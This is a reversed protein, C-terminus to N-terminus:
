SNRRGTIANAGGMVTQGVAHLGKGVGRAVFKGAAELGAAPRGAAAERRSIWALLEEAVAVPDLPFRATLPLGAGVAAAIRRQWGPVNADATAVFESVCGRLVAFDRTGGGSELAGALARELNGQLTVCVHAVVTGLVSRVVSVQLVACLQPIMGIIYEMTEVFGREVTDGSEPDVRSTAQVTGRRVEILRKWYEIDATPKLRDETEMIFANLLKDIGKEVAKEFLAASSALLRPEGLKEWRRGGYDSPWALFFQQEVCSLIVSMTACSTVFVAFQLVGREPVTMLHNQLLEAVTRFLVSLYKLFMEDVNNLESQRVVASHDTVVISHCRSLFRLAVDGIVPVMSAYPLSVRGSTYGNPPLPLEIYKCRDLYFKKVYANYDEVNTAILPVLTDTLVAQTAEMCAEQLWSSIINDSMAEVVLSLTLPSLRVSSVLDVAVNLFQRLLRFIDMMRATYNPDNSLLSSVRRARDAMSQSLRDWMSLIESSSQIHPKTAHHVIDEILLFGLSTECYRQLEAVLEEGSLGEGAFFPEYLDLKAQQGRSEAYYNCYYTGRRLEEFVEQLSAGYLIDEIGASEAFPARKIFARSCTSEVWWDGENTVELKKEISGARVSGEWTLAAIGIPRSLERLLKLWANLQQVAATFIDQAMQPVRHHVVYEGLAYESMPTAVRLLQKLSVVAGLLQRKHVRMEVMELHEAIELLAHLLTCVHAVNERICRSLNLEAAARKMEMVSSRALATAGGLEQGVLEADQESISTCQRAAHLFAPYHRECLKEVQGENENIFAALDELLIDEENRLYANKLTSYDTFEGDVLSTVALYRSPAKEFLSNLEVDRSRRQQQDQLIPQQQQQQQQQQQEWLPGGEDESGESDAEGWEDNEKSFSEQHESPHEEERELTDALIRATTSLETLRDEIDRVEKASLGELKVSSFDNGEDKEATLVARTSVNTQIDKTSDSKGIFLTNQVSSVTLLKNPWRAYFTVKKAKVLYVHYATAYLHVKKQKGHRYLRLPQETRYLVHPSDCMDRLIIQIKENEETDSESEM